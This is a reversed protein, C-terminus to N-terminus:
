IRVDEEPERRLITRFGGGDGAHQLLDLVSLLGDAIEFHESVARIIEGIRDALLAPTGGGFYLSTVKKRGEYQSGVMHIESLLADIYRDAKAREFPEKCYPCFHCIKRCFPLHIYLGPQEEGYPLVEDYENRFVFKSTSRTLYMRTLDTLLSM